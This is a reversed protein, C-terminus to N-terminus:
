SGLLRCNSHQLDYFQQEIGVLLCPCSSVTVNDGSQLRMDCNENICLVKTHEHTVMGYM